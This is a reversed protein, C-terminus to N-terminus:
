LKSNKTDWKQSCSIGVNKYHAFIGFSLLNELLFRLFAVVCKEKKDRKLEGRKKM